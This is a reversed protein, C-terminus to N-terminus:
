VPAQRREYLGNFQRWVVAGMSFLLTLVFGVTIITRIYDKYHEDSFESPWIKRRDEPTPEFPKDMPILVDMLNEVIQAVYWHFLILVIPLCKLIRSIFLKSGRYNNPNHNWFVFLLGIIISGHMDPRIDNILAEGSVNPREPISVERKKHNEISTYLPIVSTINVVSKCTPCPVELQFKSKAWSHLCEWCFMHGCLTTVTEFPSKLCIKCEVQDNSSNSKKHTNDESQM